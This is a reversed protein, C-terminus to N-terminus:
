RGTAVDITGIGGELQYTTGELYDAIKYSNGNITLNFDNEGVSISRASLQYSQTPSSLTRTEEHKDAVYEVNVRAGKKLVGEKFSINGGDVLVEDAALDAVNGSTVVKFTKGNLQINAKDADSIEGDFALQANDADAVLSVKKIAGTQWT